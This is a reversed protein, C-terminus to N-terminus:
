WMTNPAGFVQAYPEFAHGPYKENLLDAVTKLWKHAEAGKGTLLRLSSCSM